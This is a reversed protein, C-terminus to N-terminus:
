LVERARAAIANVMNNAVNDILRKAAGGILANSLEFSLNFTVKSGANGLELISWEGEFSNFPGKELSLAIHNPPTLTNRTTFSQRLGAKEIELTAVMETDSETLVRVSRCGEMFEPYASVNNILEFVAEASFPLLASRNISAM